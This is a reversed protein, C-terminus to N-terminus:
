YYSARTRLARFDEGTELYRAASTLETAKVSFTLQPALYDLYSAVLPGEEAERPDRNRPARIQDTGGRRGPTRQRL